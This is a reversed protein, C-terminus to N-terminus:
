APLDSLRLVALWAGRSRRHAVGPVRDGADAIAQTMAEHIRLRETRKVEFHLPLSPCVLEPSEPGGHYQRGRHAPHGHESLWRALDREGRAGKDLSNTM